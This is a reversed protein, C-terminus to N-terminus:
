TISFRIQNNGKVTIIEAFKFSYGFADLATFFLNTLTKSGKESVLTIKVRLLRSINAKILDQSIMSLM